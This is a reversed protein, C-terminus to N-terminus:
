ASPTVAPVAVTVNDGGMVTDTAGGVALTYALPVCCNVAVTDFALLEATVHDIGDPAGPEILADPNYVAGAVM